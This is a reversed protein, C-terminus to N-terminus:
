LVSASQLLCTQQLYAVVTNSTSKIIFMSIYRMKKCPIEKTDETYTGGTVYMKMMHYMFLWVNIKM